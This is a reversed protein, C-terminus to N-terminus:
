EGGPLSVFPGRFILLTHILIFKGNPIRGTKLPTQINTEPLKLQWNSVLLCHCLSLGKLRWGPKPAPGKMPARRYFFGHPNKFSSHKQLIKPLHCKGGFFSPLCSNVDRKTTWPPPSFRWFTWTSCDACSPSETFATKSNCRISCAAFVTSVRSEFVPPFIWHIGVLERPLKLSWFDMTNIPNWTFEYTTGLWVSKHNIRKDGFAVLIKIQCTGRTMNLTSVQCTRRELPLKLRSRVGKEKLKAMALRKASKSCTEGEM